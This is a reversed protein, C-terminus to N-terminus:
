LPHELRRLSAHRGRVHTQVIERQIPVRLRDLVIFDDTGWLMSRRQLHARHIQVTVSSRGHHRKEEKDENSETRNISKKTPTDHQHHQQQQKELTSVVVVVICPRRAHTHDYRTSLYRRTLKHLQLQKLLSEEYYYFVHLVPVVADAAARHPLSHYL